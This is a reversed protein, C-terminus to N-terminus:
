EPPEAGATRLRDLIRARADPALKLSESLEEARDLTGADRAAERLRRLEVVYWDCWVCVLLHLYVVVRERATLRRELSASLVPTLDRCTPLRHLLFWRIEHRIKRYLRM